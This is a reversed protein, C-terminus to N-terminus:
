KWMRQIQVRNLRGEGLGQCGPWSRGDCSDKDGGLYGTGERSSAGSTRGQAWSQEPSLEEKSGTAPVRCSFSQTFWVAQCTYGEDITTKRNFWIVWYFPFDELALAQGYPGRWEGTLRSQLRSATVRGRLHYTLPSM